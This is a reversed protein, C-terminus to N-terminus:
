YKRIYQITWQNIEVFQYIRSKKFNLKWSCDLGVVPRATARLWKWLPTWCSPLPICDVLLLGCYYDMWYCAMMTYDSWYCAVMAFDLWYCVVMKYDSWYCVVLCRLITLGINPRYCINRSDILLIGYWFM